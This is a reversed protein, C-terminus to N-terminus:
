SGTRASGGASGGAPRALRAALDDLAARQQPHGVLGLHAHPMGARVVLDVDVGADALQRAFDEGCPRLDDLESVEVLTPPLGRLDALAPFAYPSLDRLPGGVYNEHVERLLQPSTRVVWPHRDLLASLEPSAAPVQPHMVPYALLLQWPLARGEDRQRLASGCALSAGASAGGIALRAPDIGLDEVHRLVWRYAAVVDDHPVPFHVGALALRYRVTVVVVPTRAVLGLALDHADPADLDGMIFAGGHMWVLGPVPDLPLAVASRRYIRVPVEGHSGAVTVAQVPSATM